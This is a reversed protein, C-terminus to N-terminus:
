PQQRNRVRAKLLRVFHEFTDLEATEDDSLTGIQNKALLDDLRQQQQASLHFALLKDAAAGEALLDLLEDYIQPKEVTSM